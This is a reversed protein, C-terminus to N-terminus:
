FSTNGGSVDSYQNGINQPLLNDDSDEWTFKEDHSNEGSNARGVEQGPRERVAQDQGPHDRSDDQQQRRGATCFKWGIERLSVWKAGSTPRCSIFNRESASRRFKELDLNWANNRSWVRICLIILDKVSSREPISGWDIQSRGRLYLYKWLCTKWIRQKGMKTVTISEEASFQGKCYDSCSPPHAGLLHPSGTETGADRERSVRNTGM